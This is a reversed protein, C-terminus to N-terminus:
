SVSASLCTTPKSASLEKRRIIKRFCMEVQKFAERSSLIFYDRGEDVQSLGSQQALFHYALGWIGAPILSTALEEATRWVNWHWVRDVGSGVM